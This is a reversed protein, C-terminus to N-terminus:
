KKILHVYVIMGGPYDLKEGPYLVAVADLPVELPIVYLQKDQPPPSSGFCFAAREKQVYQPLDTSLASTLKDVTLSLCGKTVNATCSSWSMGPIVIKYTDLAQLYYCYYEPQAVKATKKKRINDAWEAILRKTTDVDWARKNVTVHPLTECRRSALIEGPSLIGKLPFTHIEMAPVTKETYSLFPYLKRLKSILREPKKRLQNRREIFTEITLLLRVISSAGPM